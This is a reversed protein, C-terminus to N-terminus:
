IKIVSNELVVFIDDNKGPNIKSLGTFNGFAPLIGHTKQFCYCPLIMSQKAPGNMRVAPHIHGSL